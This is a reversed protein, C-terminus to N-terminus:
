RRCGRPRLIFRGRAHDLQGCRTARDRALFTGEPEVHVGAGRVERQRERLQRGAALVGGGDLKGVALEGAVASAAHADAPIDADRRDDYVVVEAGRDASELGVAVEEASQAQGPLAQNEEALGLVACAKAVPGFEGFLEDLDCVPAVSERYRDEPRLAFGLRDRQRGAEFHQFRVARSLIETAIRCDGLTSELAGGGVDRAPREHQFYIGVTIRDGVRIGFV